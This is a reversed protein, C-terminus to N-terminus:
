FRVAFFIKGRKGLLYMLVIIVFPRVSYGYISVITRLPLNSYFLDLYYEFYNQAILTLLLAVIILLGRGQEKNIFRDVIVAATLGTLAILLPVITLLVMATDFKM